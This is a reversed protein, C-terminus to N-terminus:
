RGAAEIMAREEPDLTVPDFLPESPAEVPEEERLPSVDPVLAEAPVRVQSTEIFENDPHEGVVLRYYGKRGAVKVNYLHGKVTVREGLIDPHGLYLAEGIGGTVLVQPIARDEGDINLRFGISHGGPTERWEAQYGSAGGKEVKGAKQIRGLLELTETGKKVPEPEDQEKNRVEERSAVGRKVEFGLMAIARGAASTEANEIESGRTYSTSGPISLASHAVSPKDDTPSRYVTARMVVRSDSLEIIDTQISGDPFKDYFVALREAVTVYDDLNFGSV